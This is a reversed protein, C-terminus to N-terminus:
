AALRESEAMQQVHAASIVDAFARRAQERDAAICAECLTQLAADTRADEDLPGGCHDCAAPPDIVEAAARLAQAQAVLPAHGTGACTPCPLAYRGRYWHVGCGSCHVCM